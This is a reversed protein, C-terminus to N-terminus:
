WLTKFTLGDVDVIQDLLILLFKAHILIFKDLLNLVQFLYSQVLFWNLNKKLLFDIILETTRVYYLAKM